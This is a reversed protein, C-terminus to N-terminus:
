RLLLSITETKENETVVHKRNMFSAFTRSLSHKERFEDNTLYDFDFVQENNNVNYFIDLGM